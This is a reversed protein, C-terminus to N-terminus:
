KFLEALVADRYASNDGTIDAKTYPLNIDPVTPRNELLLDQNTAFPLTLDESGRVERTVGFLHNPIHFSFLSQSDKVQSTLEDSSSYGAGTGNTPTGMLVARGSRKLLAATKDCASICRSSILAVIKQDFGKVVPNPEIRGNDMFDTVPAGDRLAKKFVDLGIESEISSDEYDVFSLGSPNTAQEIFQFSHYNARLASYSGPISSDTKVLNSLLIDPYTSIGGGNRKLDLLLPGGYAKCSAMFNAIADKWRGFDKEDVRKVKSAMFTLVQLYCYRKGDQELLGGRFAPSMKDDVWTQVKDSNILTKRISWGEAGFSDPDVEWKNTMKNYYTNLASLTPIGLKQFYEQAELNPNPFDAFWPIGIKRTEGSQLKVKIAVTNSKPFKFDRAFLVNVSYVQRFDPGSSTIYQALDEAATKAPVGDVELIENGPKLIEYLDPPVNPNTDILRQTLKRNLQVIMIKGDVPQAVILSYVRPNGVVPIASFHTDQTGAVCKLVRDYFDFRTSDEIKAEAYVCSNFHTELDVGILTKKLDWLVYKDSTAQKLDCLLKVRKDKTLKLKSFILDNSPIEISTGFNASVAPACPDQLQANATLIVFTTFVFIVARITQM